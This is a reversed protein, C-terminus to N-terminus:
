HAAAGTRSAWYAAGEAVGVEVREKRRRVRISTARRSVDACLRAVELPLDIADLSEARGPHRFRQRKFAGWATTSVLSENLVLQPITTARYTQQM